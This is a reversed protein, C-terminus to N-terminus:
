PRTCWRKVSSITGEFQRRFWATSVFRLDYSTMAIAKTLSWTHDSHMSRPSYAVTMNVGEASPMM